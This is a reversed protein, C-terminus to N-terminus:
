ALIADYFQTLMSETLPKNGSPVLGNRWHIWDIISAIRNTSIPFVYKATKKKIFQNFPCFKFNKDKKNSLCTLDCMSIGHGEGSPM